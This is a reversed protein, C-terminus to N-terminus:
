LQWGAPLPACLECTGALQRGCGELRCADADSAPRVILSPCLICRECVCAELILGKQLLDRVKKRFPLVKEKVLYCTSTLPIDVSAPQVYSGLDVGPFDFVGERILRHLDTDVFAHEM